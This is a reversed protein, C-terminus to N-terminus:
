RTTDYIHNRISKCLQEIMPAPPEVNSFRREIINSNTRSRYNYATVSEVTLQHQHTPKKLSHYVTTPDDHEMNMMSTSYIGPEFKIPVTKEM